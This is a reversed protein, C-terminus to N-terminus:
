TVSREHAAKAHNGDVDVIQVEGLGLARVSPEIVSSDGVVVWTMQEPHLLRM